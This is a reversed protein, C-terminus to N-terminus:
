CNIDVVVTEIVRKGHQIIATGDFTSSDMTRSPSLLISVILNVNCYKEFGDLLLPTHSQTTSRRQLTKYIKTCKDVIRSPVSVRQFVDHEKFGRIKCPFSQANLDQRTKRLLASPIYLHPATNDLCLVSGTIKFMLHKKGYTSASVLVISNDNNTLWNITPMCGLSMYRPMYENNMFVLPEMLCEEMMDMTMEPFSERKPSDRSPSRTIIDEEFPDRDPDESLTVVADIMDLTALSLSSDLYILQWSKMDETSSYEMAYDRYTYTSGSM